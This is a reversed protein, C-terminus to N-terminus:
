LFSPRQGKAPHGITCARVSEFLWNPAVVVSHLAGLTANVAAENKGDLRRCQDEDALAEDALVVYDAVEASDAESGNGLAVLDRLMSAVPSDGIVHVLLESFLGEAAVRRRRSISPLWSIEFRLEFGPKKDWSGLTRLTDFMRAEVIM